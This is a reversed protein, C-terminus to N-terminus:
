RLPRNIAIGTTFYGPGHDGEIIGTIAGTNTTGGTTMIMTDVIIMIIEGHVVVIEMIGTLNSIGRPNIGTTVTVTVKVGTRNHM